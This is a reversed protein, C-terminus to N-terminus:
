LRIQIWVSQVEIVIMVAIDLDFVPVVDKQRTHVGFDVGFEKM